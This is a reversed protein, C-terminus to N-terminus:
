TLVEVKLATIVPFSHLFGCAIETGKPIKLKIVTWPSRGANQVANDEYKYVAIGPWNSTVTEGKTYELFAGNGSVNPWDERYIPTRKGPHYESFRQNFVNERVVKWVILDKEAVGFKPNRLCM